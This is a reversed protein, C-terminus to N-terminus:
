QFTHATVRTCLFTGIFGYYWYQEVDVKEIFKGNARYQVSALARALSDNAAIPIFDLLLYGCASESVVVVKGEAPREKQANPISILIPGSSCACVLFLSVVTIFRNM